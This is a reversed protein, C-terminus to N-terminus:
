IERLDHRPGPRPLVAGDRFFGLWLGIVAFAAHLVSDATNVAMGLVQGDHPAVLGVVAVLAYVIGALRFFTQAPAEGAVAFVLALIGTAFFFLIHPTDIMFVGFLLGGRSLAPVFGAVGLAIFLIGAIVALRRM